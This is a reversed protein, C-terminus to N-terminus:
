AQALLWAAIDDIVKQDVHAPKDYVSTDMVDDPAEMFLHSLTPYLQYAVNDHDALATKWLSYDTDAYVQFDNGGQLILMPITLKRALELSHIQNLSYWYRSSMGLLTTEPSDAELAKVQDVQEQVMALLGTKEAETMTQDQSLSLKNQDYIVEELPRLTGAMSIIGKVEPHDSAIKPSLMGGLSHGLVYIRSNDVRSDTSALRIADGVDLLVEEDITEETVPYATYRKDYRITAIDQEALGHAIDAFPRNASKGITEDMDNPGSGQVLVVVPPKEVGKPLTLMGNMKQDNYGVLIPTEQYADTEQAVPYLRIFVGVVALNEDYNVTLVLRKYTHLETITIAAHGSALQFLVGETKEYAGAQTARTEYLTQFQDAPLAALLEPSFAASFEASSGARLQEAYAATKEALANADFALLKGLKWFITAAEARTATAQPALVGDRGTILGAGVARSMAEAAWESVKSADAFSTLPSQVIATGGNKELYRWLLATMQERSVPQMPAFKGDGIGETIGQSAAWRVADAYWADAPVDTFLADGQATDKSFRYLITVFTARTVEEEPSFTTETTGKLLGQEVGNQVAEEAWHGKMDAFGASEAASVPLLGMLLGIVLVLSVLKGRM